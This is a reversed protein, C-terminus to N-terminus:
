GKVTKTYNRGNKRYRFHLTKKSYKLELLTCGSPAKYISTLKKNNLRFLYIQNKALVYYKGGSKQVMGQIALKKICEAKGATLSKRTYIGTKDAFVFKGSQYCFENEVKNWYANDYKTDKALGLNGGNHGNKKMGKDSLLFYKHFVVGFYEKSNRENLPDDWTVDVHYWSGDILVVNWAHNMADSSCIRSQIGVEQLLAQYAESYGQCVAKGNVLAGYANYEDSGSTLTGNSYEEYAYACHQALYDHLVLAKEEESMASTVLSAAEGLKASFAAKQEDTVESYSFELRTYITQNKWYRLGGTVYFLKPNENVVQTFLSSLEAGNETPINYGSIDLTETGAELARLIDNKLNEQEEQSIMAYAAIGYDEQAPIGLGGAQYLMSSVDVSEMVEEENDGFLLTDMEKAGADSGTVTSDTATRDEQLTEATLPQVPVSWCLLGALTLCIMRTGKRKM